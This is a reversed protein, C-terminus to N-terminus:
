TAHKNLLLPNGGNHRITLPREEMLGIEKVEKWCRFCHKLYKNFHIFTMTGLFLIMEILYITALM